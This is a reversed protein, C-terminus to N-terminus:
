KTTVKALEGIARDTIKEDVEDKVIHHMIKEAAELAMRAATDRIDKLAEVEAYEIREEVLQERHRMYEDLEQAAESRLREAELRAHEIIADAHRGAELQKRKIDNLLEQAEEKLRVAEKIDSDIQLSRTDLGDRVASWIARGFFIFFLVFAVLFWFTPDSFMM